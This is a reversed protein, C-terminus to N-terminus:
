VPSKKEGTIFKYKDPGLKQWWVRRFEVYFRDYKRCEGIVKAHEPLYILKNKPILRVVKKFLFM